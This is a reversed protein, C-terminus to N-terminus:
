PLFNQDDLRYLLYQFQLFWFHTIFIFSIIYFKQNTFVLDICYFIVLDPISFYMKLFNLYKCKGVINADEFITYNQLRLFLPQACDKSSM